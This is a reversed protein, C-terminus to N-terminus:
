GIIEAIQDFLFRTFRGFFVNLDLRNVDGFFLNKLVFRDIFDSVIEAEFIRLM